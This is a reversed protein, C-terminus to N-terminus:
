WYGNRHYNNWNQQDKRQNEEFIRRQAEQQARHQAAEQQNRYYIEAEYHSVKLNETNSYNNNATYDYHKTIPREPMSPKFNKYGTLALKRDERYEELLSKNEESYTNNINYLPYYFEIYRLLESLSRNQTDIKLKNWYKFFSLMVSFASVLDKDEQDADKTPRLPIKLGSCQDQYLIKFKGVQEFWNKEFIYDKALTVKSAYDRNNIFEVIHRMDGAIHHLENVIKIEKSPSIFNTIGNVWVYYPPLRFNDIGYKHMLKDIIKRESCYRIRGCEIKLINLEPRKEWILIERLNSRNKESKKKNSNVSNANKKKLIVNNTENIIRLANQADAHGQNASLTFLEVAKKEDKIVGYGNNYVVGLDFQANSHG